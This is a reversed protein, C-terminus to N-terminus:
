ESMGKPLTLGEQIDNFLYVHDGTYSYEDGCKPKCINCLDEVEGNELECKLEHELLRRNCSKCRGSM